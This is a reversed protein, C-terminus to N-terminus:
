KLNAVIWNAILIGALFGLVFWTLGNVYREPHKPIFGILNVYQKGSRVFRDVQNSLKIHM